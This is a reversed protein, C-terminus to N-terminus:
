VGMFMEFAASVSSLISFILGLFTSWFLTPARGIVSTMPVWILGGIAMMLVNISNNHNVSNPSKHWAAAQLIVPASGTASTFDSTLAAWAVVLLILHKKRHGDEALRLFTGEAREVQLLVGAEARAEPPFKDVVRSGDSKEGNSLHEVEPKEM